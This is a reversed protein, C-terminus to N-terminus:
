QLCLVPYWVSCAPNSPPAAGMCLVRRKGSLFIYWQCVYYVKWRSWSGHPLNLFFISCCESKLPCTFVLIVQGNGKLFFLTEQQKSCYMESRCFSDWWCAEKRGVLRRQRRTRELLRCLFSFFFWFLEIHLGWLTTKTPREGSIRSILSCIVCAELVHWIECGVSEVVSLKGGWWCWEVMGMIELM